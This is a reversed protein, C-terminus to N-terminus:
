QRGELLRAKAAQFEAETLAGSNKLDVLKQLEDAISPSTTPQAVVSGSLEAAPPPLLKVSNDCQSAVVDFDKAEGMDAFLVSGGPDLVIVFSTRGTYGGMRNRANIVGCTWYGDIRKSFLPRWSGLLFGYPWEIQASAPDILRARLASESNVRFLAWDPESAEYMNEGGPWKRTGAVLENFRSPDQHQTILAEVARLRTIVEPRGAPVWHADEIQLRMADAALAALDYKNSNRSFSACQVKIAAGQSGLDSSQSFATVCEDFKGRGALNLGNLLAESGARANSCTVEMELPTGARELSVPIVAAPEIGRLLAIVEEGKKEAVDIRNLTILRDGPVLGSAAFTRSVIPGDAVYAGIPCRDKPEGLQRLKAETAKAEDRFQNKDQAHGSIPV